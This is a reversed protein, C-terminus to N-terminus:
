PYAAGQQNQKAHLIPMLELLAKEKITELRTHTLVM